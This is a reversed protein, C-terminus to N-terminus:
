ACIRDMAGVDRLVVRRRSPLDILGSDQLQTFTRSVTEITLGLYDAIDQRSMPLVVGDNSLRTKMDLLFAVVRECASQRGLMMVHAEARQLKRLVTTWADEARGQRAISTEFFVARRMIQLTTDGISEATLNHEVESDLGFVDGCLHFDVIQRRGDSLVRYTRVAGSLVIYVNRAPEGEGFIEENRGYSMRLGPADSAAPHVSLANPARQADTPYTSSTAQM